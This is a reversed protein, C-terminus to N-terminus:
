IQITYKKYKWASIEVNRKTNVAVVIMPMVRKDKQSQKKGAKCEMDEKYYDKGDITICDNRVIVHYYSDEDEVIVGCGNEFTGSLLKM